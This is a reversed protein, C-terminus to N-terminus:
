LGNFIGIGKSKATATILEIASADQSLPPSDLVLIINAAQFKVTLRAIHAPAYGHQDIFKSRRQNHCLSSLAM